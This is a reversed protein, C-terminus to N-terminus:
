GPTGSRTALRGVCWTSTNLGSLAGLGKRALRNGETRASEALGAGEKGVRAAFGAAAHAATAARAAVDDPSLQALTRLSSRAALAGQGAAAVTWEVAARAEGSTLLPLAPPPPPAPPAPLHFASPAPVFAPARASCASVSPAPAACPPCGSGGDACHPCLRPASPSSHSPLLRAHTARM